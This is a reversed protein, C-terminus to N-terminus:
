NLLMMYLVLRDGFLNLFRDWNDRGATLGPRGYPLAASGQAWDVPDLPSPQDLWMQLDIGYGPAFRWFPILMRGALAEDVEYLIDLWLSGTGPALEFGLAAQQRDNPIWERDNDEEQAVVQWFNRNAAVMARLHDGAARTLDPDPQQRLTQLLVAIRDVMPGLARAQMDLSPARAKQGPPEAFQAALAGDLALKQALAPGPDFALILTAMGEILHTYARLWHMDAADFRLQTAGQPLPLAALQALGEQPSRRKDADVDLWLDALDLVLAGDGAPLAQRTEEMALSLDQMMRNIDDARMARPEPNSPLAAGLVPLPLLPETAGMQWRAQYAAEIGGLFRVASLAMDRDPSAARAELQAAAASLGEAAILRSTTTDDALAPAASLLLLAILRSM